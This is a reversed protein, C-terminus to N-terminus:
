KVSKYNKLKIIMNYPSAIPSVGKRVQTVYKVLDNIFRTSSHARNKLEM